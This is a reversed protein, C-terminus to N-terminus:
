IVLVSQGRPMIWMNGRENVWAMTIKPGNNSMTGKDDGM